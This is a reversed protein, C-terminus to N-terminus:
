VCGPFPSILSATRCGFPFMSMAWWNPTVSIVISLFTTQVVVRGGIRLDMGCLRHAVIAYPQDLVPVRRFEQDNVFGGALRFCSNTTGTFFGVLVWPWIRWALIVSAPM